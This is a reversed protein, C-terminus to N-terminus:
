QSMPTPSEPPSRIACDAQVSMDICHFIHVVYLQDQANCQVSKRSRSGGSIGTVTAPDSIKVAASHQLRQLDALRQDTSLRLHTIETNLQHHCADIEDLLQAHTRSHDRALRCLLPYCMCMASPTSPSQTKVVRNCSGAVRVKDVDIGPANTTPKTNNNSTIRENTTRQQKQQPKPVDDGSHCEVNKLSSHVSATTPNTNNNAVDCDTFLLHWENSSIQAARM